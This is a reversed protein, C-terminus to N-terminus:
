TLLSFFLPVKKTRFLGTNPVKKKFGVYLEVFSSGSCQIFPVSSEGAIARALLTKGTGPEGTLLAGKPIRAGTGLFTDPERLFDVIEELESKANNIRFYSPIRQM